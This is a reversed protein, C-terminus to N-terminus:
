KNNFYILYMKLLINYILNEEVRLFLNKGRFHDKSIELNLELKSDSEKLSVICSTYVWNGYKCNYRIKHNGSIIYCNNDIMGIIASLRGSFLLFEQGRFRPKKRKKEKELLNTFWSNM